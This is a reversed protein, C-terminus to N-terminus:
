LFGQFIENLRVLGLGTNNLVKKSQCRVCVLECLCQIINGIRWILSNKKLDMGSTSAWNPLKLMLKKFSSSRKLSGPKEEPVEM